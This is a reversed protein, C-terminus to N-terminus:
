RAKALDANMADLAGRAAGAWDGDKAQQWAGIIGRSSNVIAGRGDSRAGALADAATGGQAGYGPILFITDPMLTRLRRAQDPYTAGVVAGVDNLGCAGIRKSGWERVLQATVEMVAQADVDSMPCRVDSAVRVDQLEGSSPNSTKVLVFVGGTGPVKGIFPTVGDSGLYGNITLWECALGPLAKGGLSPAAGLFAQQYHEATSGIDGRKADMIVPIGLAKAHRVTEELAKVGAFGYAEYCASQPKVAACSGAVADLLGRNFALFAAAVAESTDGHKALAAEKVASPLLAPRPDLGVCAISGTRDIVSQLQDAAHVTM